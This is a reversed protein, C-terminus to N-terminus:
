DEVGDVGAKANFRDARASERSWWDQGSKRGQVLSRSRGGCASQGIHRSRRNRRFLLRAMNRDAHLGFFIKSLVFCHRKKVGQSLWIKWRMRTTRGSSVYKSLDICNERNWGSRDANHVINDTFVMPSTWSFQVLGTSLVARTAQASTLIRFILTTPVTKDDRADLFENGNM